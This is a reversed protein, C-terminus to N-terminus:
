NDKYSYKDVFIISFWFIHLYLRRKVVKFNIITQNDKKTSMTVKFSVMPFFNWKLIEFHVM